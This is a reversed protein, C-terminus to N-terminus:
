IIFANDDDLSKKKQKEGQKRNRKHWIGNATKEKINIKLVPVMIIRKKSPTLM